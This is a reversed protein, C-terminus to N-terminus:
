CVVMWIIGGGVILFIFEALVLLWEPHYQLDLQPWKVWGGGGIERGVLKGQL